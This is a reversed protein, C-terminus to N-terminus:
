DLHSYAIAALAQFPPPAVGRRVLWAAFANFQPRARRPGLRARGQHHAHGGSAPGRRGHPHVPLADRLTRHRRPLAGAGGGQTLRPVAFAVGADMDQQSLACHDETPLHLFAIGRHALAAFDDQDESRLDIVAGIGGAALAPIASVPFSGGVALAPTVWDLNLGDTAAPAMRTLRSRGRRAGSRLAGGDRRLVGFLGGPTPPASSHHPAIGLHEPTFCFTVRSMSTWWPGGDAPRVLGPRWPPLQRGLSLGTRLYTVGLEKMWRVAQDLRHDEFHFWQCLGMWPAHPRYADLSLKPSGDERLLGMYFHRYYSSGEAEKHRTTAEWARPLDYLSYWHVRPALGRLLEATRTLGWAQVEEAGFSSVGVESVWVPKTTVSTIEALKTPWDHISWLNWTWRSATFRWRTWRRWPAM